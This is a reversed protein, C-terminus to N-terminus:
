FLVEGTEPDIQHHAGTDDVLHLLPRGLILPDPTGDLGADTLTDVDEAFRDNRDHRAPDSTHRNLRGRAPWNAHQDDCGTKIRTRLREIFAPVSSRHWDELPDSITAMGARRRQDALVAIEHVLHPHHPWCGPILGVTPDWTYETNFWTVVDDLWAWVEERLSRHTITAPDWPRPLTAADGVARRQADTGESALWLDRYAERLRLTAPMPFPHILPRGTM